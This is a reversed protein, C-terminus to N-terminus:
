CIRGSRVRNVDTFAGSFAPDQELQWFRLQQHTLPIALSRDAEPIGQETRAGVDDLRRALGEVTLADFFDGVGLERGTTASIRGIIQVARLSDIGLEYLPTAPSIQGARLGTLEILADRVLRLTGSAEEAAILGDPSLEPVRVHALDLFASPDRRLYPDLHRNNKQETDGITQALAEIRRTLQDAILPQQGLAEELASVGERFLGTLAAIPTSAIPLRCALRTRSHPSLSLL